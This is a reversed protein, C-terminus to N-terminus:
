NVIITFKSILKCIRPRLVHNEVVFIECVLRDTYSSSVELFVESSPKYLLGYDLKVSTKM